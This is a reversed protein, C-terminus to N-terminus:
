KNNILGFYKEEPMPKAYLYGQIIDCGVNELFSAQNETEVGEAITILKLSQAMKVVSSIIASGKEINSTGQVFGMDLKLIDIPIDKLSNLSSYGSGFDDMALMYGLKRIENIRYLMNKQDAMYASETIEFHIYKPPIHFEDDLRKIVFILADTELSVRSINISIPVPDLGMDLWKRMTVFATRWIYKDLVRIFGNKEAIPIFVGPSVMTDDNKIWRCLTEAGILKGTGVQYQPQFWIHFENNDLAQQMKSTIDAEMVMRERFDKSFLTYTNQAMSVSKDMCLTACNLMAMIDNEGSQRIYVGFRITVPFKVGFNNCDIHKIGYIKQMNDPTYEMIIAFSGGGLHAAIGKEGCVNNLELGIKKLVETGTQYSYLDNIVKLRNVDGSLVVYQVDPNKQILKESETIFFMRNPLGTEKDTVFRKTTEDHMYHICNEKKNYGYAIAKAMDHCSSYGCSGCNIKRKEETDKLMENYIDNFIYEPVHFPQRFRDEFDRVFDEYHLDVFNRQFENWLSEYDYAKSNEDKRVSKRLKAIIAHVKEADFKDKEIGPGQFCGQKCALVDVFFPQADPYNDGKGLYLVDFTEKTLGVLSTSNTDPPFFQNIAAHFSGAKPIVTGFSNATLCPEAQYVSIDTEGIKQMLHSFTVNYNVNENTNRSVIEDKKSICPGIFAIKNSDHLYKHAYIATCMMPTHIPIIRNRLAPHYMEIVNIFAPCTHSIYARKSVPDDAHEKLYKVHGWTCIEAGFSANYIKEVGVHKLYGLIHPATDEYLIYFSPAIVVSIKEGNALDNFFIDTDDQYDRANHICLSICKGCHNCKKSDVQIKSVGNKAISVNAGFISCQSLCKNCGICNDNTYIVGNNFREM